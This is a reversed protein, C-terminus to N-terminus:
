LVAGNFLDQIRHIQKNVEYERGGMDTLDTKINNKRPFNNIEHSM